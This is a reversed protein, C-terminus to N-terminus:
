SCPGSPPNIRSYPKDIEEKYKSLTFPEESGPITTVEKYDAYLLRYVKYRKFLQENFRTHKKVAKALLEESGITPAVTLPLTAGRKLSLKGDKLILVGINIKVEKPLNAELKVKKTRTSCNKFFKSREEEKRARYSQFSRVGSRKTTTNKTASTSSTPTGSSQSSMSSTNSLEKGCQHCFKANPICSSGCASCFMQVYQIYSYLSKICFIFFTEVQSYLGCNGSFRSCM